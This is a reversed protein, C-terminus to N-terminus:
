AQPTSPVAGLPNVDPPTAGGAESAPLWLVFTSGEGVASFLRVQGGHAEIIQRVIALGLGTRRDRSRSGPQQEGNPRRWFRDFVRAQEDARIGPGADRVAVWLWGDQRGAAVTVTSGAPAVRVANSLLNGVARRLADHDGVLTIGSGLERVITLGLRGALPEFEEAAERAATAVDVDTDDFAPASRRASALLDDVLKIMRTTARDIVGAARHREEETSESATLVADLNTRIITLPTRLEHSADDILQRQARFAADLRDLMSDVTDGLYRLEDKPGQLRIRRSLDTAQIEEATRAIARVPRLVRGSLMWGIGLSIVFLGGLLGFSYNRLNQMTEFNVAEEVAQLKVVEVDGVYQGNVRKEAKIINSTIPEAETSKSVGFYVGAVVLAALAFLLTSYLVTLRFRITHVFSPPRVARLWRPRRREPTQLIESM